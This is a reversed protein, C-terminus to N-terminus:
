KNVATKSILIPQFQKYNFSRWLWELPGMIFIKLWFKSFVLLLLNILIALLITTVLSLQGVFGLGYGYFILACILSQMLYNTLAMRGYSAVWQFGWWRPYNQVLIGLTSSYGIATLPGAIAQNFFAVILVNTIPLFLSALGVASAIPLGLGLGWNRWRKLLTPQELITSLLGSKTVYLGLLFMALVSPIRTVLLFGTEAFSRIRNELIISFQENSYIKAASIQAETFIGLIEMDIETTLTATAPLNQAIFLGSLMLSYLVTPVLLLGAIWRLLKKPSMERFPLILFGVIAYLLLIDGEWLIIIHAVGFLGLFFLRRRFFPVFRGNNKAKGKLFQIAFGIGFLFSFVTFFKSEVFILLGILVIQDSLSRGATFFPPTGPSAFAFINILLIGMLAFGRIIDLAQIREKPLTPTSFNKRLNPNTSM